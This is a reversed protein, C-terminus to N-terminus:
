LDICAARLGHDSSTALQPPRSPSSPAPPVGVYHDLSVFSPISTFFSLPLTCDIAQFPPSLLPLHWRHCPWKYTLFVGFSMGSTRVPADSCVLYFLSVGTCSRTRHSGERGVGISATMSLATLSGVAILAASEGARSASPM